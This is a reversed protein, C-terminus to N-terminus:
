DEAQPDFLRQFPYSFYPCITGQNPLASNYTTFFYFLNNPLPVFNWGQSYMQGKIQANLKNVPPQKLQNIPQNFQIFNFTIDFYQNLTLNSMCTFENLTNFRRYPYAYGSPETTVGTFLLTGSAYNFFPYNFVKVDTDEDYNWGYNVTGVYYEYQKNSIFAQPIQYWKIKVINKTINQYNVSSNINTVPDGNKPGVRVIQGNNVQLTNKWYLNGQQNVIVENNPEIFMETYRLYECFDYYREPDSTVELGQQGAAVRYNRKWWLYDPPLGADGLIADELQEDTLLFYNRTKFKVELRCQKYAVTELFSRYDLATNPQGALGGFQDVNWQLTGATVKGTPALPTINVQYAYYSPNGPMSMPPKRSLGGFIPDGGPLGWNKSSPKTWGLIEEYIPYIYEFDIIFYMVAESQGPAVYVDGPSESDIHEYLYQLYNIAM